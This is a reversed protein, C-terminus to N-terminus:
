QKSRDSRGRRGTTRRAKTSLVTEYDADLTEHPDGGPRCQSLAMQDHMGTWTDGGFEVTGQRRLMGRPESWTLSPAVSGRRPGPGPLASGPRAPKVSWRSLVPFGTWGSDSITMVPTAHVLEGSAM